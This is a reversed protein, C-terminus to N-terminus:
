IETASARHSFAVPPLPETLRPTTILFADPKTILHDDATLSIACSWYTRRVGAIQVRLGRHHWFVIYSTIMNVNV